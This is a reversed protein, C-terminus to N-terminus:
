KLVKMEREEENEERRGEKNGFGRNQVGYEEEYDEEDWENVKEFERELGRLNNDDNREQM